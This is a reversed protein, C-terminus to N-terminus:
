YRDNIGRFLGYLKLNSKAEYVKNEKIENMVGPPFDM